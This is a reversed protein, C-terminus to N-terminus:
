SMSAQASRVSPMRPQPMVSSGATTRTHGATTPSMNKMQSSSTAIAPFPVSVTTSTPYVTSVSARIACNPRSWHSAAPSVNM